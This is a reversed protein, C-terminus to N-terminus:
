HGTTSILRSRGSRFLFHCLPSHMMGTPGPQWKHSQLPCFLFCCFFSLKCFFFFLQPKFKYSESDEDMHPNRVKSTHFFMSVHNCKSSLCESSGQFFAMWRPIYWWLCLVSGRTSKVVRWVFRGTRGREMIREKSNQREKSTRSCVVGPTMTNTCVDASKRSQRPCMSSDPSFVVFLFFCHSPSLSLLTM